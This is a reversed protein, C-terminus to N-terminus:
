AIHWKIRSYCRDLSAFTKLALIFICSYEWYDELCLLRLFIFDYLGYLLLALLINYVITKRKRLVFPFTYEFFIYNLVTVYVVAWVNNLCSSFFNNGSLTNYRQILWLLLYGLGVWLYFKFRKIDFLKKM